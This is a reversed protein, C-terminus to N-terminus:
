WRRTHSVWWRRPSDVRCMGWFPVLYRGDLCMVGGHPFGVSADVVADVDRHLTSFATVLSVVGGCPPTGVVVIAALPPTPFWAILYVV